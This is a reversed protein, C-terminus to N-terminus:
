KLGIDNLAFQFVKPKGVNALVLGLDPCSVFVCVSVCVYLLCVSTSTCMRYECEAESVGCACEVCVYGCRLLVHKFLRRTIFCVRIFSYTFHVAFLYCYLWPSHSQHLSFATHSSAPVQWFM